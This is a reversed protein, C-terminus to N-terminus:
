QSANNKWKEIVAEFGYGALFAAYWAIDVDPKSSRYIALVILGTIAAFAGVILIPGWPVAGATALGLIKKVQQSLWPWLVGCLVGAVIWLWDVVNDKFPVAAHLSM